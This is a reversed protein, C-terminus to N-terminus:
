VSESSFRISARASGIASYLQPMVAHVGDNCILLVNSVPCAPNEEYKQANIRAIISERTLQSRIMVREIRAEVPATVRWEADVMGSLGGSYLIATEVFIINNRRFPGAWEKLRQRVAGHVISNLASLKNKDAFVIQALRVRDIVGECLVDASIEDAIRQKITNDFDMIDKAENDCNFVPYNWAKLVNAVTSKGAGIGGTLAILPM